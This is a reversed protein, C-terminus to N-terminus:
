AGMRQKKERESQEVNEQRRAEAEKREAEMKERWRADAALKEARAHEELERARKNYAPADPRNPDRAALRANQQPKPPWDQQRQPEPNRAPAFPDSLLERMNEVKTGMIESIREELRRLGTAVIVAPHGDVDAALLHFGRRRMEIVPSEPHRLDNDAVLSTGWVDGRLRTMFNAELIAFGSGTLGANIYSKVRENMSM